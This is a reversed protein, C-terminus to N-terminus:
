AIQRKVLGAFLGKQDLLEQYNGRQVIRGSEMVYIVDASIITSLRHAIAIRTARLKNLSETVIAQTKNDLASTAEDFLIIGPKQVIAKAILLRQRQGGSLTTGGQSLVTHMGMPMQKIDEDFGAMRAAEWADDMTRLSAGVINTFIDGSMLRSGQMVVGIQRRVARKDLLALDQGDYYIAGTDPIEFGLLLRLLTSKGSGSPGVIAVFKGPETKITVDKLIVPGDKSYRFTIHDMEIQGSIGGPHVLTNDVEPKASLIPRAREWLPLVNIVMLFSQTLMTMSFLFTVFAANFALYTGISMVPSVGEDQLSQTMFYVFSIYIAINALLPNYAANFVMNINQINAAKFALNRQRTFLNAWRAFAQSESGAVRLKSIGMLFQLVMASVKGQISYIQRRYRLDLYGILLSVIINLLILGCAVWALSSNYYFMQGVYFVSFIGTLLGTVAVDSLTKRIQSIAMVRMNLDGVSFQRFFNTPLNLLRDIFASQLAYDLKGEIRLFAINRTFEFISIGIASVVLAMAIYLLQVSEAGPIIFDFITAMAWPTFLGLLAGAVGYISLSVLDPRIGYLTFNLVDKGTLPVSPFCRYFSFCEPKILAANKKNVPIRVRKETDYIVYSRTSTPLLAVPQETDDYYALLPGCDKMWWNDTLKVLRSRIQSTKCIEELPDELVTTHKSEAPAKISMGQAQGVHWVAMYLKDKIDGPFAESSDKTNLISALQSLAEERSLKAYDAKSKLRNFEDVEALRINMFECQFLLSYLNEMGNMIDGRNLVTETDAISIKVIGITQLWTDPTIPILTKQASIGVEEMGLYLANGETLTIWLIDKQLRCINGDGVTMEKVPELLIDTRTYTHIDKALGRSLGGIWKDLLKTSHFIYEPIKAIEYFRGTDIRYIKTGILGVALLGTGMEFKAIDIGFLLEGTGATFLHSRPGTPQNEEVNVSFIEVQGEQIYWVSVPDDLLFPTNGGIISPSGEQEFAKGIPCDTKDTM